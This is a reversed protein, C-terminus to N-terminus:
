LGSISMRRLFTNNAKQKSFLDSYYFTGMTYKERIKTHQRQSEHSVSELSLM